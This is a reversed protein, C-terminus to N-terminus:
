PPVPGFLQYPEGLSQTGQTLLLQFPWWSSRPSELPSRILEYHLNGLCIGWPILTIWPTM